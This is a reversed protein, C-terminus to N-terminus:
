PKRKAVRQELREIEERTRALNDQNGLQLQIEEAGKLYSIAERYRGERENLWAIQLLNFAEGRLDGLKRRIRLSDEYLRRAESHYGLHMELRGQQSLIVGIAVKNGLQTQIKLSMQLLRRAEYINGEQEELWSLNYFTIAQGTKNKLDRNIKLAEKYLRRAESYNFNSVELRGLQNLIAAINYQDDIEQRIRLSQEYFQRASFPNGLDHELRGLHFLGYAIDTQEGRERSVRLSTELLLRAETYDNMFRALRGLRYLSFAIQSKDDIDQSIRLSDEFSRKAEHWQGLEQYMVGIKLQLSIQVQLEHPGNDVERYDALLGNLMTLRERKASLSLSSSIFSAERQIPKFIQEAIDPEPAFEYLGSRWAWFDPASRALATLAYDPLWIVLANPIEQRFLERNLNLYSLIPSLSGGSILSQELGYLFLVLKPDTSIVSEEDMLSLQHVPGQKIREQEELLREKIVVLLDEVPEGLEIEVVHINLPQLLESFTDVAELRQPYTNCKVFGLWFGEAYDLAKGLRRLIISKPEVGSDINLPLSLENM